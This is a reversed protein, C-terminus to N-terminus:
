YSFEPSNTLISYTVHKKLVYVFGLVHLQSNCNPKRIVLGIFLNIILSKSYIYYVVSGIRCMCAM